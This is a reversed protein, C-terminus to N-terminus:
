RVIKQGGKDVALTLSNLIRTKFTDTDAPVQTQKIKTYITQLDFEEIPEAIERIIQERDVKYHKLSEFFTDPSSELVRFLTENSWQSFEVNVNCKTDFTCLFEGVIETTLNDLNEYAIRVKEIDCKECQFDTGLIGLIFLTYIATLKIM